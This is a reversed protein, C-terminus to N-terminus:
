VPASHPVVAHDILRAVAGAHALQVARAFNNARSPSKAQPGTQYTRCGQCETLARSWNRPTACTRLVSWYGGFGLLLGLKSECLAAESAVAVAARSRM